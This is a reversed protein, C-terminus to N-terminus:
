GFPSSALIWGVVSYHWLQETVCHIHHCRRPGFHRVLEVPPRSTNQLSDSCLMRASAHDMRVRSSPNIRDQTRSLWGNKSFPPSMIDPPRANCRGVKESLAPALVPVSTCM